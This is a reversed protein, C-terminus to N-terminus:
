KHAPLADFEKRKKDYWNTMDQPSKILIRMDHMAKLHAADKKQFMEIGHKKSLEAIEEFTDAEFEIDCAGGLEKCTMSKM